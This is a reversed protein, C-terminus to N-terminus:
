NMKTGQGKDVSARKGKRLCELSITGSLNKGWIKRNKANLIETWCFKELSAKGSRRVGFSRIIKLVSVVRCNM